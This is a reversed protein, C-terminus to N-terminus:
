MQDYFFCISLFHIDPGFVRDLGFFPTVRVGRGYARACDYVQLVVRASVCVCVCMYVCM